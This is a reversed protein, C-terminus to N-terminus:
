ASEEGIAEDYAGEIYKTIFNDRKFGVNCDVYPGISNVRNDPTCYIVQINNDKFYEILQKIRNDSIKSFAEDLVAFRLSSESNSYYSRMLSATLLVYKPCDGEGGSLKGGGTYTMEVFEGNDLERRIVLGFDFYNRYDTYRDDDNESIILEMFEKLDANNEIDLESNYQNGFTKSFKKILDLYVSKKEKMVFRYTDKDFPIKKLVANIEDREIYANEIHTNIESILSNVFIDQLKEKNLKVSEIAEDIKGEISLENLKDRYFKFISKGIGLNDFNNKMKCYQLQTAEVQKQQLDLGEKSEEIKKDTIVINNRKKSKEYLDNYTKEAKTYTGSHLDKKRKYEKEIEELEAKYQSYLENQYFINQEIRSKNDLIEKHKNKEHNYRFEAKELELIYNSNGKKINNIEKNIDKIETELALIKGSIGFDYQKDLKSQKIAAIRGDIKKIDKSLETFKKENANKKKQFMKIQVEISHQGLCFFEVPRNRGITLGKAVYNDRTIGGKTNFWAESEHEDFLTLNNLLANAYLRASRNKIDLMSAATNDKVETQRLLYTRVINIEDNYVQAKDYLNTALKCYENDVFVDYRRNGLESEIAQRWTEDKIGLILEAFFYTKINKGTAEYLAKELREKALVRKKPFTVIGQSMKEISSEIDALEIQIESRAIEIKARQLHLNEEGKEVANHFNIFAAEKNKLPIDVSTINTLIDEDKKSNKYTGFIWNLNGAMRAELEQLEMLRDKSSALDQKKKKLREKYEDIKSVKDFLPNKRQVDLEHEAELYIDHQKEEEKEAEVLNKQLIKITDECVPIRNEAERLTQYEKAKELIDMDESMKEYKKTESDINQLIEEEKKLEQLNAYLDEYKERLSKLESVTEIKVQPFINNRIYENIAGDTKATLLQTIRNTLNEYYSGSGDDRIGLARLIRRVGNEKSIEINSPDIKRGKHLIRDHTLLRKGGDTEEYVEVQELLTDPLIFRYTKCKDGPAEICAGAVLPKGEIVAEIIIYSITEGTRLQIPKSSPDDAPVNGRVYDILERKDNRKEKKEANANFKRIGFLLYMLADITTTKGSGSVGGFLNSSYLKIPTTNFGLSGWNIVLLKSILAKDSTMRM